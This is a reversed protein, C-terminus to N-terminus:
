SGAKQSILPTFREAIDPLEAVPEGGSELWAHAKLGDNEKCVGIRLDVAIGRRHLLWQLTMAQPLCRMPYLHHRAAIDVLRHLRQAIQRESATLPRDARHEGRALRSQLWAFPLARLGWDIALLFVWAQLLLGWEMPTLALASRLKRNLRYLTAPPWSM